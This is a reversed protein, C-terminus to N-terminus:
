FQNTRHNIKMVMQPITQAESGPTATVTEGLDEAQTERHRLYIMWYIAGVLLGGGFINGLTVPILNSIFGSIKLNAVDAVTKGAAALAAPESKYFFSVAYFFPMMSQRM